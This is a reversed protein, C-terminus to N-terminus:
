SSFSFRVICKVVPMEEEPLFDTLPLSENVYANQFRLTLFFSILDGEAFPIPKYTDDKGPFFRDPSQRFYQEFLFQRLLPSTEMSTVISEALGNFVTEHPTIRVHSALANLGLSRSLEVALAESLYDLLPQEVSMDTVFPGSKFIQVLGNVFDTRDRIAVDVTDQPSGERFQICRRFLELTDTLSTEVVIITESYNLEIGLVEVSSKVPDFGLHLPLEIHVM